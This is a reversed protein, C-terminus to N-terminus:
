CINCKNINDKRRKESHFECLDYLVNIDKPEQTNRIRNKIYEFNSLHINEFSLIILSIETVNIFSNVLDKYKTVLDEAATIQTKWLFSINNKEPIYEPIRLSILKSVSKNRISVNFLYKLEYKQINYKHNHNTTNYKHDQIDLIFCDLFRESEFYWGKSIIRTLSKHADPRSNFKLCLDLDIKFHGFKRLRKRADRIFNLSFTFYSELFVQIVGRHGFRCAVMFSWHVNPDNDYEFYDNRFIIDVIDARGLACAKRLIQVKSDDNKIKHFESQSEFEFLKLVDKKSQEKEKEQKNQKLQKIM